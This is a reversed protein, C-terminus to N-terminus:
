RGVITLKFHTIKAFNPLTQDINDERTWKKWLKMESETMIESRIIKTYSQGTGCYKSGSRSNCGYKSQEFCDLCSLDISISFLAINHLLAMSMFPLVCKLSTMTRLLETHDFKIMTYPVRTVFSIFDTRTEVTADSCYGDHLEEPNDLCGRHDERHIKMLAYICVNQKRRRQARTLSATTLSTATLSTTMM